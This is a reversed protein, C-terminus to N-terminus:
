GMKPLPFILNENIGDMTEMDFQPFLKKLFDIIEEVLVEPTSASSSIGLTKVNDFNINRIDDKDAILFSNANNRKSLEVLRNSNSSERSGIILVMDALRALKGVADQRNQTAYCIDIQPPLVLNTFRIKLYDIIERADGVSLTTQTLCAVNDESNFNLKGADALTEILEMPAEGMIGKVEQHDKHGILIIKYNKKFFNIAELHIKAVLPCTADIIKLKKNKAKVFIEPPVGHASFIVVSGAPIEDISEVFVAGKKALDNVVRENHVIKHRVYIPQGYIELAREVTQVARTVGACFGRTKSLIIKQM